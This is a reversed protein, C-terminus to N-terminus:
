EDKKCTLTPLFQQLAELTFCGEQLLYPPTVSLDIITSPQDAPSPGGDLILPIRGRLQQAAELATTPVPQGVRNATTVALPRGFEVVLQLCLPHNPVRVTVTSSNGTVENPLASNKPLSVTLQGPWLQHLMPWAQNPVQQAVHNLDDVQYIFVRLGQEPLQETLMYLQRVAFREFANVGLCYGEDTPFAIVEGERLLRRALKLAKPAAAPLIDTM